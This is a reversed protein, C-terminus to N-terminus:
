NEGARTSQRMRELTSEFEKQSARLQKNIRYMDRQLTWLFVLLTLTAVTALMAAPILPLHNLIWTFGSGGAAGAACATILKMMTM